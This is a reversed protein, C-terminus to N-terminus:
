LGTNVIIKGRISHNMNNNILLYFINVNAPWIKRMFLHLTYNWPLNNCLFWLQKAEISFNWCPFIETLCSKSLSANRLKLSWDQFILQELSSSLYLHFWTQPWFLSLKIMYISLIFPHHNTFLHSTSSQTVM